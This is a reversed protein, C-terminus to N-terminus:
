RSSVLKARLDHNMYASLANSVERDGRLYDKLSDFDWRYAVTVEDHVVANATAMNTARSDENGDNSSPIGTTAATKAGYCEGATASPHHIEADHGGGDDVLLHNLFAMEGIFQNPAVLAIQRGQKDIRVSGQTVFYLKNNVQHDRALTTGRKLSVREARAFLRMFEVRSFGRAKFHGERYIDEMAPPMEDARREELILSVTMFTNIGLLLVNWRIPIWLPVARYYQFLISLSISGTSLVRLMFIDTHLYAVCVGVFSIHGAAEALSYGALTRSIM